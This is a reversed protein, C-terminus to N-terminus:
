PAVSNANQEYYIAGLRYSQFALWALMPESLTERNTCSQLNYMFDGDQHETRAAEVLCKTKINLFVNSNKNAGKILCTMYEKTDQSPTEDVCHASIEKLLANGKINENEIVSLIKPEYDDGSENMYKEMWDFVSVKDLSKKGSQAQGIVGNIFNDAKYKEYAQGKEHLSCTDINQNLCPSEEIYYRYKPIPESNDSSIYHYADANIKRAEKVNKMVSYDLEIPKIPLKLVPFDQAINERLLMKSDFHHTAYESYSPTSVGILIASLLINEPKLKM